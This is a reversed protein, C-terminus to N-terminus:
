STPNREQRWAHLEGRAEDLMTQMADLRVEMKAERELARDREAEARDARASEAELVAKLAVVATEAGNVIISDIEAPAKKRQVVYTAIGTVLSGGLAPAILQMATHIQSM